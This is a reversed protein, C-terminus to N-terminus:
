YHLQIYIICYDPFIIQSSFILFISWNRIIKIRWGIKTMFYLEFTFLESEKHM